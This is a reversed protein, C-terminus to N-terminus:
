ERTAALFLLAREGEHPHRLCELESLHGRIAALTESAVQEQLENHRRAHQEFLGPQLLALALRAYHRHVAAAIAHDRDVLAATATVIDAAIKACDKAHAQIVLPMLAPAASMTVAQLAAAALHRPAAGTLHGVLNVGARFGVVTQWVEAGREDVLHLALAWYLAGIPLRLLAAPPGHHHVTGEQCARTRQRLAVVGRLREAEANVESDLGADEFPVAEQVSARRRALRVIVGDEFTRKASLTLIHPHRTQGLRDVRGARQEFRTPTWPVELNVVTRCRHHLNLGESAADTALLLRADGHTFRRLQRRREAADLGGHLVAIGDSGLLEEIHVLTDRYETFVLVPQRCRRLLRRLVNLKSEHGEATRALALIRELTGRETASDPLGPVALEHCPEDDADSDILPLQLQAIDSVPHNALFALRREVSRALSAASSCARRALIGMALRAGAAHQPLADRRVARSYRHLAEFMEREAATPTVALLRTRRRISSGLVRRGRRFIVLPREDGPLVGVACLRAFADGEGSHPTATLLLVRRGRAALLHAASARDSRGAVGHAEDFVIVDWVLGELARMVEPRKVFDISAIATRPLSWPNIDSPVTAATRAISTADVLTCPIDFRHTLEDRWQERLGAPTVILVRADPERARVEAVILAAQITKGLGVDDAILVRTALGRTIALAPELQFPLLSIRATAPSRLSTWAPMASQLADRM